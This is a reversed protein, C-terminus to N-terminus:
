LCAIKEIFPIVGISGMKAAQEGRSRRDKDM